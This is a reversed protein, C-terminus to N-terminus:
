SIHTNRESVVTDNSDLGIRVPDVFQHIFRQHQYCCQVWMYTLKLSLFKESCRVSINQLLMIKYVKHQWLAQSALDPWFNILRLTLLQQQLLPTRRATSMDPYLFFFQNSDFPSQSFKHVQKGLSVELLSSHFIVICSIKLPSGMFRQDLNILVLIVFKLKVRLFQHLCKTNM